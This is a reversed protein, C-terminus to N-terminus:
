PAAGEQRLYLYTHKDRCYWPESCSYDPRLAADIIELGGGRKYMGEKCIFRPNRDRSPTESSSVLAIDKLLCKFQTPLYPSVVSPMPKSNLPQTAHISEVSNRGKDKPIIPSIVNM